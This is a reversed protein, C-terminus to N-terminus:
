GTRLVSAAPARGARRAPATAIANALALTIPIVLLVALLPINTATPAGLSHAFATWVLRGMIIGLPIGLALATVAITTSQTVVIASIERKTLGLAKLVALDRRRSAAGALLVHTLMAVALLGLVAALALPTNRVRTYNEIDRPRQTDIVSCFGPPCGAATVVKELQTSVAQLDTGPRYRLLFFNYCTVTPACGSDSAVSLVPASVAAGSGLGTASFTGRSFSAFVAEGVVRMTRTRDNVSVTINQGVQAHVKALTRSGLVIEYPTAPPRGALMTLFDHGRLADIGLAPTRITGITVEGYNGGAYGVVAPQRAAVQAALVGSVGGFGLDLERDWNQGYRSPTDVLRALSAGFVIAAVMAALAATMVTLTSRVPLATRGQGGDVAMRVGLAGVVPKRVGIVGAARTPHGGAAPIAGASDVHATRHAMPAVLLLPVVAIAILGLALVTLNIEFGPHPEALRAPGIPMLPSTLIAFAIAVVASAVTVIGARAISLAFLTRRNMGFARLTPYESADQAAQRSLLQGMVALVIIGAIVVFVALAFAEPRIAHNTVAAEEARNVVDVAGGTERYRAALASADRAFSATPTGANLRVVADNVFALSRGQTTRYFAPTLLVRPQANERTSPVIQFDFTAIGAVRFKLSIPHAVDPNGQPDNPFDLLRLERGPQAHTKAALGRDIVVARPDAPDSFTGAIIKARDITRGWAGDISAEVVINSDPVGGPGPLGANYRALPSVAAVEALGALARYYNPFGSGHPVVFVGAANASRLLRGYATDTRRAGTAAGLVVGGLAGFFLALVIWTRWRTRLESRLRM